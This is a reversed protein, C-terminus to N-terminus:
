LLRRDYLKEYEKREQEKLEDKKIIHTIIEDRDNFYVEYWCVDCFHFYYEYVKDEEEDYHEGWTPDIMNEDCCPCPYPEVALRALHAEREEDYIVDNKGTFMNKQEIRM